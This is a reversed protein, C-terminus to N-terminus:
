AQQCDNGVKSFIVTMFTRRGCMDPIARAATVASPIPV